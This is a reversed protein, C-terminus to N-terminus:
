SAETYIRNFLELTPDFFQLLKMIDPYGGKYALQFLSPGSIACKCLCTPYNTLIMKVIATHGESVAVHLPNWGKYTCDSIDANNILLLEVVDTHGEKCAVFLSSEGYITRQYIYAKNKLLLKVVNIHGNESAKYLPSRGNMDAKNVSCKIDILFKAIDLFGATAAEVLPTTEISLNKYRIGFKEIFRLLYKVDKNNPKFRQLLKTSFSRHEKHINRWLHDILKSRFLKYKLQTNYLTSEIDQNKLDNILRDFYTGEKNEPLIIHCNDPETPISKFRYYDRIFTSSSYKIFIDKFRNGCIVAATEYIKDHIMRYETGRNKLYTGTLTSFANILSHCELCTKSNISFVKVIERIKEEVGNNVSKEKLWNVNFSNDFLICLVIVCSNMDNGSFILKDIDSKIYDIPSSFLKELKKRNKDRSLQCLLPFLDSCDTFNEMSDIMDDPIYRKIMLEKETRLLCLEYSLLNCEFKTLVQVTQFHVNNYIHNRCSILLITRYFGRTMLQNADNKGDYTRIIQELRDNHDKWLQVTRINISKNGCIDDIVFVQNKKPNFYDIIDSPGTVFPIIEFGYNEKLQLAVFHIISSKGSGSNGTVVVCNRIQLSERVHQTARTVVFMERDKEWEQIYKNRQAKINEPISEEDRRHIEAKLEKNEKEIQMIREPLEEEASPLAKYIAGACYILSIVIIKYLSQGPIVFFSDM